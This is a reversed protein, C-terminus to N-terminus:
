PRRCPQHMKLLSSGEIGDIRSDFLATRAEQCRITVGVITNGSSRGNFDCRSVWKGVIEGRDNFGQLTFSASMEDPTHHKQGIRM